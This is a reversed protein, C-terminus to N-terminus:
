ARVAPHDRGHSAYESATSPDVMSVGIGSSVLGCAIESLPTEFRPIAREVGYSSFVDDVRFRSPISPGLAIFSRAAPLRAAAAGQPACAPPREPVVAVYRVPPMMRPASGGCAPGAHHAFGLDCAREVVWTSCKMSSVLVSCRWTSSRSAAAPLPGAFRPLVGNALAPMAAVRLVGQAARACGAAADLRHPRARRVLARGRPYLPLRRAPRCWAIARASSCCWNSRMRCNTCWAASRRSRSAACSGPGRTDHQETLM